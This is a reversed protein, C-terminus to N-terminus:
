LLCQFRSPTMRLARAFSANEWDGSLRETIRERAKSRWSGVVLLWSGVAWLWDGFALLRLGRYVGTVQATRCQAPGRGGRRSDYQAVARHVELGSCRLSAATRREGDH